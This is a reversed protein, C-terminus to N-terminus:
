KLLIMKKVSSFGEADLKYFYVGSPYGRDDFDVEYTGPKLQENVLTELQRGLADYVVLKVYSLKAIQYKIKTIPNFPNPYNQFLCYKEPITNGIQQIGTVTTDGYLVGDIYCGVIYHYETSWFDHYIAGVVGFNYGYTVSSYGEFNYMKFSKLAILIGFLTTSGTDICFRKSVSYCVVASDNERARLSDILPEFPSYTCYGSTSWCYINGSASDYRVFMGIICPFTQSLLFYKKSNIVTDKIIRRNYDYGPAGLINVHYKYVDGVHLPFYKVHSTDQSFVHLPYTLLITFILMIVKEKM